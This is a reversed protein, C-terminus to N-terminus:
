EDATFTGATGEMYDSDILKWKQTEEVWSWIGKEPKPIPPTWEGNIYSWSPYPQQPIIKDFNLEKEFFNEGLRAWVYLRHSKSKVFDISPELSFSHTISNLNLRIKPFEETLVLDNDIYFQYGLKFNNDFNVSNDSIINIVINGAGAHLKNHTIDWENTLFNCSAFIKNSM